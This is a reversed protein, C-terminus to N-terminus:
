CPYHVAFVEAADNGASTKFGVEPGAKESKAGSAVLAGACRPLGERGEPLVQAGPDFSEAKMRPHGDFAIM